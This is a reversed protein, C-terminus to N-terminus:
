DKIGYITRLMLIDEGFLNALCTIFVNCKLESNRINIFKGLILRSGSISGNQEGKIVM